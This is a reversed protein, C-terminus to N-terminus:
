RPGIGVILADSGANRTVALFGEAVGFLIAELLPAHGVAGLVKVIHLLSAETDKVIGMIAHMLESRRTEASMAFDPM